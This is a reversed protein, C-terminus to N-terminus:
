CEPDRIPDILRRLRRRVKPRDYDAFATDFAQRAHRSRQELIEVLQGAAVLVAPSAADGLEGAIGRITAAHVTADQHSGLVDQLAALRRVFKARGGSDLAGGFCELLYRLKKADKRLAHLDEAPSTVDIRRGRRAVNRQAADVRGAVWPGLETGPGPAAGALTARWSGLGGAFRPGTLAVTLVARAEARRHELAARVPALDGRVAPSLPEVDADWNELHVDLDRPPGTTAALDDFFPRHASLGGDRPALRRVQALVSRTRRVAVRFDHLHEPDEGSAAGPANAEIADALHALVRRCADLVPECADLPITPSHSAASM